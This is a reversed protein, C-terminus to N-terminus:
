CGKVGIRDKGLWDRLPEPIAVSGDPEQFQELIAPILRSTALGSANLTHVYRPKKGAANRYRIHGRRAQYDRANSASSVEKYQGISPIWVEIDYTKAMVDSCDKAALKSVRYHLGLGQVLKEAREILEELAEESHEPVTYQFMEVKNFQHGRITGREETRHSGAERRYCPTYSFYRLPLQDESLIEDRHLNIMATEATPLLFHNANGRFPQLHFVDEKLKPFQGATYGCEELLVHPPLIFTYGNKIHESCFYNLLAWELRAGDGVYIWFGTGGLKAGREFDVLGLDTALDVHDKSSTTFERKMGWRRVVVNNEKGGAPVDEDPINPLHSMVDHIKRDYSSLRKELDRIQINYKSVEDILTEAEKKRKKLVGIEQSTKNRKSRLADIRGILQRSEKDWMLLESFDVHDLRKLLAQRVDEPQNRIANIDLM